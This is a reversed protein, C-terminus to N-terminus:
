EGLDANSYYHNSIFEFSSDPIFFLKFQSLARDKMRHLPEAIDICRFHLEEMILCIEHFRLQGHESFNYSELIVMNTQKLTEAAGRIVLWEAGNTNVKLVYPPPLNRKIIWFDLKEIIVKSNGEDSKEQIFGSFLDPTSFYIEGSIDGAAAIVYDMNSYMSHIAQLSAEHAQNPEVLFFKAEPFLKSATLTWRGDSAGVDIVTNVKLGRSVARELASELSVM